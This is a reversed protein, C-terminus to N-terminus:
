KSIELHKLFEELDEEAIEIVDTELRSSLYDVNLRTALQRFAQSFKNKAPTAGLRHTTGVLLFSKKAANKAVTILPLDNYSSSQASFRRIAALLFHGLDALTDPHLFSAMAPSEKVLALRFSSFQNISQKRILELGNDTVEKQFHKSLEIGAKLLDINELADYATYFSAMASGETEELSTDNISEYYTKSLLELAHADISSDKVPLIVSDSAGPHSPVSRGLETLRGLVPPCLQLDFRKIEFICECVAADAAQLPLCTNFGFNREFSLYTIKDLGVPPGYENLKAHLTAKLSADMFPYPKRAQELSVGMKALLNLFSKFGFDKWVGLRIAIFPSYYMAEYLSWHHLLSFRFANQCSVLGESSLKNTSYIHANSKRKSQIEGAVQAVPTFDPAASRQTVLSEKLRRLESPGDYYAAPRNYPNSSSPNRQQHKAAAMGRLTSKRANIDNSHSAGYRSVTSAPHSSKVQEVKKKLMNVLPAYQEETCRYSIYHYTLGISAWWLYDSSISGQTEAMALFLSVIPPGYHLGQDIYEMLLGRSKEFLAKKAVRKTEQKELKKVPDADMADDSDSLEYDMDYEQLVVVRFAEGLEGNVKPDEGIVRVHRANFINELNFPRHCDFVYFKIEKSMDFYEILELIGGCNLFVISRSCGDLLYAESVDDSNEVYKENSNRLQDLGTIPKIRFLIGDNKFLKSLVKLSCLADPDYVVLILVSIKGYLSRSKLDKYIQSLENTRYLPM